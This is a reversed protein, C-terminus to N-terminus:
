LLTLTIKAWIEKILGKGCKYTEKILRKEFTYTEKSM